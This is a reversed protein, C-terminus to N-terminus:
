SLTSIVNNCNHCHITQCVVEVCWLYDTWWVLQPNFDRQQLQSLSYNSVGSWCVLSLWNVLSDSPQFWTTAIPVSFIKVCWNSVSLYDTWWVLQRNFDGQQLESLSFKSVGIRCVLSLSNVLSVSPQIVKNCKPCHIRQCVLEVSMLYDTWWVLKRNFDRQKLQSSSYKSVGIRCELSLSNVLSVSPQIVKNCKPCHISQCVLEVSWLYDTWCVLKRNFDRQKFQSSSYKSVGIRCELSLLKV